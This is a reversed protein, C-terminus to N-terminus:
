PNVEDPGPLADEAVLHRFEEPMRAGTEHHAQLADLFEGTQGGTLPAAAPHPEPAHMPAHPDEHM